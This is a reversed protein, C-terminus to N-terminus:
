WGSVLGNFLENVVEPWLRGVQGPQEVLFSNIYGLNSLTQSLNQVQLLAPDDEAILFLINPPLTEAATALNAPDYQVRPYNSDLSPSIAGLGGFLDPNSFAIEIAWVGGRSVGVIARQEVAPNTRYNADIDPVLGDIVEAEYSGPGGDTGNFLREPHQPMVIIFPSLEGSQIKEEAAQTVGIDVWQNQDFGEQALLYLVPYRRNDVDYCPPLYIKAPLPSPSLRAAYTIDEVRGPSEPCVLVQEETATPKITPSPQRTATPSPLDTATPAETAEESETPSLQTPTAEEPLDTDMVAMDPKETSTAIDASLGGPNNYIPWLLENSLAATGSLQSLVILLICTTMLISRLLIFIGLAIPYTIRSTLLNLGKM